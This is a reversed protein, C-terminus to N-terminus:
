PRTREARRLQELEAKLPSWYQRDQAQEARVEADLAERLADMDGPIVLRLLPRREAELKLEAPFRRAFEILLEPTRAESLWFKIWDPRPSAGNERYHIAVLLQIIPWDKARQTKKADVLDPVSLLHFEDGTTDAVVTRREWLVPFDPLGRLRTM